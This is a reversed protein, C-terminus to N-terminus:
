TCLDRLAPIVVFPAGPLQALRCTQAFSSMQPSAVHLAFTSSSPSTCSTRPVRLFGTQGSEPTTPSPGPSFPGSVEAGFIALGRSSCPCQIGWLSPDVCRLFIDTSVSHLRFFAPCPKCPDKHPSLPQAESMGALGLSGRVQWTTVVLMAGICGQARLVTWSWARCGPTAAHGRTEEPLILM